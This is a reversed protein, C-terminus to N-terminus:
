GRSVRKAGPGAGWAERPRQPRVAARGAAQAGARRACGPSTGGGEFSPWGLRGAMSAQSRSGRPLSHARRPGPAPAACGEAPRAPPPDRVGARNLKSFSPPSRRPASLPPPSPPMVRAVQPPCRGLRQAPPPGPGPDRGRRDCGAWGAGASPPKSVQIRPAGAPRRGGAKTKRAAKQLALPARGAPGEAGSPESPAQPRRQVSTPVRERSPQRRGGLYACGGGDGGTGGLTEAACPVSPQCSLSTPLELLRSLQSRPHSTVRHPSLPRPAGWM